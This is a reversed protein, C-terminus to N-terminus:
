MQQQRRRWEAAAEAVAGASDLGEVERWLTLFAYRAEEQTRYSVYEFREIYIRQRAGDLRLVVAGGYLEVAVDGGEPLHAFDPLEHHRTREVLAPAGPFRPPVVADYVWVANRVASNIPLKTPMRPLM